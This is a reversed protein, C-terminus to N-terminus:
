PAPLVRVRGGVRICESPGGIISIAAVARHLQSPHVNADQLAGMVGAYTLETDGTGDGGRSGAGSSAVRTGRGTVLHQVVPLVRKVVAGIARWVESRWALSAASLECICTLAESALAQRAKGPGFLAIEPLDSGSGSPDGHKPAGSIFKHASSSSSNGKGQAGGTEVVKGCITEGAAQLLFHV